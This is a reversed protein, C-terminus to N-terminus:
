HRRGRPRPTLYEFVESLGPVDGLRHLTRAAFPGEPMGHECRITGDVWRAMGEARAEFVLDFAFRGDTPTGDFSVVLSVSFRKLLEILERMAKPSDPFGQPMRDANAVALAIPGTEPGTAAILEQAFSPLRLFERLEEVTSRPEEPSLLSRILGEEPEKAAGLARVEEYRRIRDSAIWGLSAPGTEAEPESLACIEAWHPSPNMSQVVSYLVHNVVRRPTGWVCVAVPGGPWRAPLFWPLEQVRPPVILPAPVGTRRSSSSLRRSRGTRRPLTGM